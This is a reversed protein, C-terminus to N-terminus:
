AKKLVLLEIIQRITFGKFTLDNLSSHYCIVNDYVFNEM